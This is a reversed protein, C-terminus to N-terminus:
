CNWYRRITCLEEEYKSGSLKTVCIRMGPTPSHIMKGEGYYIGVHHVIGKGKDYAFFLLDGPLVEKLNIKEGHRAQDAADRPILYGSTRLMTFTFGSCDFGYASIGSWLYPLDLFKKAYNVIEDGGHEHPQDPLLVDSKQLFGQGIPSDVKVLTASDGLIPLITGFSLDIPQNKGDDYFTAFPSRITACNKGIGMDTELSHAIPMWGPYGRADKSTYQSPIIVKAWPGRREDVILEDGFLVQTQLRDKKCLDLNQERNMSRLWVALNPRDNVIATDIFRVSEPSTWVTAVPVAIRRNRVNM